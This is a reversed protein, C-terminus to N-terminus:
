HDIGVGKLNLIKAKFIHLHKLLQLHVLLNYLAIKSKNPQNSHCSKISLGHRRIIDVIIAIYFNYLKNVLDYLYLEYLAM